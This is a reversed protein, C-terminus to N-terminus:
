RGCERTGTTVLLRDRRLQVNALDDAELMAILEEVGAGHDARTVFDAAAKLMPVANATAVSCEALALLAHDNEADGIAVVNHASLGLDDLAAALGSAKDVGTPLVMVAGKNFIVQLELGLERIVELVTAEHPTRTAVISHGVSLPAVGREKLQMLLAKPPADALLKKEATAPRFLLAGNEAVVRDFLDLETFVGRLDELERGTVLILRRGTAALRRLAQVTADAVQGDSALTGDFDAALAVYRV